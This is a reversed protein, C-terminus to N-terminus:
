PTPGASPPPESPAPESPQPESTPPEETPPPDSPADTPPEVAPPAEPAQYSPASGPGAPRAPRTGPRGIDRTSPQDGAGTSGPANRLAGKGIGPEFARGGLGPRRGPTLDESRTPPALSPSPSDVPQPTGPTRDFQGAVAVAGGAMVAVVVSAAGLTVAIRRRHRRAGLARVQEAPLGCAHASGSAAIDSLRELHDRTLGHEFDSM